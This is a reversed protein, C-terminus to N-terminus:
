VRLHYYIILTRKTAELESRRSKVHLHLYMSTFVVVFNYKNDQNKSVHM